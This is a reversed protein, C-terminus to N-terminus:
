FLDLFHKTQALYHHRSLLLLSILFIAEAGEVWCLNTYFSQIFKLRKICIGIDWSLKLEILINQSSTRTVKPQVKIVFYM